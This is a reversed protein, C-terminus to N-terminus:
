WYAAQEFWSCSGSFTFVTSASLKLIYVLLRNVNYVPTIELHHTSNGLLLFTNVHKPVYFTGTLFQRVKGKSEFVLQTDLRGLLM